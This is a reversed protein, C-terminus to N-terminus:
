PGVPAPADPRLCEGLPTPAFRHDAEERFVGVSALTRLLRYLAGEHTGTAAALDTARRSGERLLDAIGLTAVVHLAQSVQYGNALRTLAAAPQEDPRDPSDM